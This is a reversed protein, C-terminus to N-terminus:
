GAREAATVRRGRRSALAGLLLLVAWPAEVSGAACGCGGPQKAPEPVCVGAQCVTGAGCTCVPASGGDTGDGSPGADPLGGADVQAGADTVGGGDFPGPGADTGAGGDTKAGGDTVAGGDVPGTVHTVTVSFTCSAQNSAADMATATVVTAGLPFTSGSPSAVVGPTSLADTATAAPFSVPAGTTSTTNVTQAGPCTISPPTADRKVTVSKSATGGASTATCTLTQGATDTTVVVTACGTASSVSSEPDSVTFTVTANGTYWGSTGQTGTVAATIVPPTSDSATPAWAWLERGGRANMSTFYLRGGGAVLFTSGDNTFGSRPAQPIRAAFLTGSPTGDTSWLAQGASGDFALFYVKSWAVLGPVYGYPFAEGTGPRVDKLLLTGAATADTRWPERGTAWDDSPFVLVNGLVVGAGPSSSSSNSGPAIDKVMGTGSATGDSRWLEEGTSSTHASFLLYAGVGGFSHAPYAPNFPMLSTVSTTGATTGDSKWLDSGATFYLTTGVVTLNAPRSDGAGPVVDKVMVTGGVTGDTRWLEEGAATTASAFYLFTGMVTPSATARTLGALPSLGLLKVPAGPGDVKYLTDFSQADLAHFFLTSGLARLELPDSDGPGPVLDAVRVTGAATGDSRWLENGGVVDPAAFYVYAGAVVLPGLTTGTPGPTLDKVLTTGPATGDSKWLEPGSQGDNSVFYLTSGLAVPTPDSSASYSEQNIDAVLTCPATGDTKWLERGSATTTAAFYLSTGQVFPTAPSSTAAGPQLDFLLTTGAATGTSKWWELGHVGDDATFYLAGGLAVLQSPDIAIGAPTVAKVLSTGAATGDSKWVERGNTGDEATFFLTTGVATLDRPSASSAGPFIDKVLVTGGTTGDSKWLETGHVGDDLTFYVTAGIARLTGVGAGSTTSSFSTLRTEFSGMTLYLDSSGAVPIGAFFLTNGVNALGPGEVPAVSHTVAYTGQDFGDSRWLQKASGWDVIFYVGFGMAGNTFLHRPSSSESAQVVNGIDQVLVTGATTGDTKWLERGHAVTTAAFLVLGNFVTLETPTSSATGAALDRM